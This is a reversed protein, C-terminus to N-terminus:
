IYIYLNQKWSCFLFIGDEKLNQNKLKKGTIICEKNSWFIIKHNKKCIVIFYFIFLNNKDDRM